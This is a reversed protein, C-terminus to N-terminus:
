CLVGAGSFFIFSFAGKEVVGVLGGGVGRKRLGM